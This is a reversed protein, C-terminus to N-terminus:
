RATAPVTRAPRHGSTVKPTRSARISGGRLALGSGLGGTPVNMSEDFVGGTPANAIALVPWAHGGNISTSMYDGVMQGQTTAALWSLTMPGAVQTVASWSSGGNASSVFGIDLQCTSATCNANPYYYYTVGIKATSGSTAKDVGIGPIFHDGGDSTVRTVPGWTTESTSKSMVIDNGTCGAQFRCDQWVVYVTGASDVEASPLPDTRMNGAVTHLQISSILVSSRWTSGGNTTRFSRITGVNSEYPVLVDGNPMVTPQGGLGTSSTTVNTWTSGGDSSTAMHIRNGAGNDDYEAYCNGYHPSSPNSDCAIWTKDLNASGSAHVVVVPNTWTLGGDTSRSDTVGTGIVGSTDTIALSLIMWTSHKADFTVAPDSVRDFPGSGQFKTIGPLFGHTWTSGGNISTAWGIDSAGGNTFRGSQFAGVITSGFTFTDPEVQTKHQSTTNTFPDTSVQTVSVNALALGSGILLSLAAVVVAAPAAVVSRSQTSVSM